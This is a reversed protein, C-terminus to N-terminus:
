RKPEFLAVLRRQAFAQQLWPLTSVALLYEAILVQRETGEAGLVKDLIEDLNEDHDDRDHRPQTPFSATPQRSRLRGTAIWV